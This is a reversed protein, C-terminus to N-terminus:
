RGRRYRRMSRRVNQTALMSGTRIPKVAIVPGTAWNLKMLIPVM